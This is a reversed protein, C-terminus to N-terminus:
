YIHNKYVPWWTRWRSSIPLLFVWTIVTYITMYISMFNLIYKTHLQCTFPLKQIYSRVRQLLESCSMHALMAIGAIHMRWNQGWTRTGKSHQSRLHPHSVSLFMLVHNINTHLQFLLWHFWYCILLFPITNVSVCHPFLILTIKAIHTWKNVESMWDEHKGDYKNETDM